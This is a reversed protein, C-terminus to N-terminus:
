SIAAPWPLLRVRTRRVLLLPDLYTHERRLGWHLCAPEPCGPHGAQLTGLRQGRRVLQGPRVSVAVPEYTTRLGDAHDVSAVGRGALPGAYVVVGDAASEVPQGPTGVLDAGRHGPGYPHTEPQFARSVRPVPSLPWDFRAVPGTREAASSRVPPHAGRSATPTRGMLAPCVLVTALLV